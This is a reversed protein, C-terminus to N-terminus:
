VNQSEVGYDEGLVWKKGIGLIGITLFQLCRIYLPKNKIVDTKLIKRALAPSGFRRFILEGMEECLNSRTSVNGELLFILLEDKHYIEEQNRSMDALLTKLEQVVSSDSEVLSKARAKLSLTRLAINQPEEDLM